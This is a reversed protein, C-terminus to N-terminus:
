ELYSTILDWIAQGSDFGLKWAAVGALDYSQILAMENAIATEDQLWIEYFNGDIESTYSGYNLGLESLYQPTVGHNTLYSLAEKMGCSFSSITGDTSTSWVRTYFPIGNIVKSADVSALTDVIGEEVFSLSAVAGTTTSGSTHEDYGMIVVYDAVIGQEERNYYSTYKPVYNDISLVIGNVRCAISLERIFQIYHDASGSAISEFDINIGDIEYELVYAIVQEIVQARKETSSLVEETKSSDFYRTGSSDPFENSFLAWVEIGKEHCTTVYDHTAICKVSGDTDAFWFWTPSITNIGDAEALVSTLNSNASASMVQHWAMCIKYDKQISTYEPGNDEPETMTVTMVDSIASNSVWGIYGDSTAVNTWNDYVELVILRENASAYRLVESKIGGKYRIATEKKTLVVEKEGWSNTIVVRRPDEYVAYEMQTYSAVYDACVYYTEDVTVLLAYGMDAEDDDQWGEDGWTRITYVQENSTFMLLQTPTSFLLQEEDEDWYFRSNLTGTVLSLSVYVRGDIDLAREKLLQDNLTIAYEDDELGIQAAYDLYEETPAFHNSYFDMGVKYGVVGILILVIVVPLIRKM